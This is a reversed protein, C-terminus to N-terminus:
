SNIGNGEDYESEHDIGKLDEIKQQQIYNYIRKSNYLNPILFLVNALLVFFEIYGISFPVDESAANIGAVRNEGFVVALVVGITIAAVEIILRLKWKYNPKLELFRTICSWVEVAWFCATLIYCAVNKGWIFNLVTIVIFVLFIFFNTSVIEERRRQAIIEESPKFNISIRYFLFINIGFAIVTFGMVVASLSIINFFQYVIVNVTLIIVPLWVLIGIQKTISQGRFFNVYYMHCFLIIVVFIITLPLMDIDGSLLKAVGYLVHM